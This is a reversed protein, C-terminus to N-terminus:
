NTKGPEGAEGRLQKLIQQQNELQKTLLDIMTNIKFYWLVVGRLIFFLGIFVLLMVFFIGLEPSLSNMALM